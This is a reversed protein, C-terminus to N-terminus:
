RGQGQNQWQEQAPQADQVPASPSQPQYQQQQQQMQQQQPYQPQQQLQQQQPYQPQQQMQQQAPAAYQQGPAPTMQVAGGGAQTPQGPQVNVVTGPVVRRADPSKTRFFLFYVLGAILALGLVGGVVGGVIAGVAGGATPDAPPPDSVVVADGVTLTYAPLYIMLATQLAPGSLAATAASSTISTSSVQYAITVGALLRRRAAKVTTITISTTPVNLVAAVASM